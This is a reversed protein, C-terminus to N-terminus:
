IGFIREIVREKSARELDSPIGKGFAFFGLPISWRKTLNFLEGYTPTQDLKTFSLSTIGLGLCHKIIQESYSEKETSSLCLHYEIEFDKCFIQSLNKLSDPEKPGFGPTDVLTLYTKGSNFIESLDDQDKVVHFPIGLIKCFIRVQEMGALRSDDISIIQVPMKEKKFFHSALKEILTSKGSGYPGILVKLQNINSELSWKPSIKIQKYMWKFAESKIDERILMPENTQKLPHQPIPIGQLYKLLETISIDAVGMIRLHKELCILDNSLGEFLSGSKTKLVEMLYLKLESVGLETSQLMSRTPIIDLIQSMRTLIAELYTAIEPTSQNQNLLGKDLKIGSAAAATVEYIKGRGSISPKEKTSLIVADPGFDKKLAKVADKM